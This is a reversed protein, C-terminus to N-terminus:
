RAARQGASRSEPPYFLRGPQRSRQTPARAHPPHPQPLTLIPFRHNFVRCSATEERGKVVTLPCSPPALPKTATPPDCSRDRHTQARQAHSLDLCLKHTSFAYKAAHETRTHCLWQSTKRPRPFLSLRLFKSQPLKSALRLIYTLHLPISRM